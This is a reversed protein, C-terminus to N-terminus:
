LNWLLKSLVLKPGIDRHDPSIVVLVISGNSERLHLSCSSSLSYDVQPLELIESLAHAVRVTTTSAKEVSLADIVSSKHKTQYERRLVVSGLLVIPPIQRMGNRTVNFLDMRGPGGHWRYIAIAHTFGGDLLRMSLNEISSKGRRVVRANPIAASLEKLLINLRQSTERGTTLGIV